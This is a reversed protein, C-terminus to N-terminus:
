RSKTKKKVQERRKREEEVLNSLYDGKSIEYYTDRIDCYVEYQQRCKELSEKMGGIRKVLSEVNRRLTDADAPNLIDNREMAQKCVTRRLKETDSLEGNKSLTYFEQAQEWLSVLRNHEDILDNIEVRRKEYEKKLRNIQGELEGISGIRDKSIVSLQASLRYVDLDNDVSYEATVNRKRQVKKHQVALIRVDNLVAAYARSLKSQEDQAPTVGTGMDRYTIRINLSDETYDEGLTKTRVFREQRPAKISIYKGRKIEYGREELTQLLEDLTTVTPIQRDIEDRIQQKWSTGNRKQEWEYHDASRGKGALNPHIDIGFAKCVGDSNRRFQQLSEKNAYFKKGSLSYSCIVIHTHIHDKDVHTAIVAQVDDGFNKRLLAKAIRHALEPTVNDDPSFSQIYHIAKVTGKGELPPLSNFRDRAFQEYVLQMQSNASEADTMCNISTTYILEETKDPNLIYRM